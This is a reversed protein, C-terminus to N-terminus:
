KEEESNGINITGESVGIQVGHDGTQTQDVKITDAPNEPEIEPPAPTFFFVIVFVALAGGARVALQEVKGEVEIFGTFVGAIGCAALALVTKVIAYQQANLDPFIIVLVLVAGVFVFGFVVGIIIQWTPPSAGKKISTM